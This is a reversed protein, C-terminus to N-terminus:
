AHKLLAATYVPPPSKLLSAAIDLTVVLDFGNAASHARSSEAAAAPWVVWMGALPSQLVPSVLALGSGAPHAVLEATVGM